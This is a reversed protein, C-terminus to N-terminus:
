VAGAPNEGSAADLRVERITEAVGGPGPPRRTGLYVGPCFRGRLPDLLRPRAPTAEGGARVLCGACLASLHQGALSFDGRRATDGIGPDDSVRGGPCGSQAM